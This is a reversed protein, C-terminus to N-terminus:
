NDNHRELAKEAEEQYNDTIKKCKFMSISCEEDESCDNCHKDRLWDIVGDYSIDEYEKEEACYTSIMKNCTMHLCRDFFDGDYKGSQRHYKEGIKIIQNCFECKHEKKARQVKDNYFELM